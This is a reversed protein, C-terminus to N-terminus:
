QAAAVDGKYDLAIAVSQGNKTAQAQWLGDGDLTLGTVNAYGAAEMRSKAEDQTFSNKGKALPAGTMADPSKAAPNPAANASAMPMNQTQAAAVGAVPLCAAAAFAFIPFVKM